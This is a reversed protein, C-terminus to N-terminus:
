LFSFLDLEKGESTIIVIKQPSRIIFEPTEVTIEGILFKLFEKIAEHGKIEYIYEFERDKHIRIFKMTLKINNKKCEVFPLIFFKGFPLTTRSNIYPYWRTSQIKISKRKIATIILNILLKDLENGNRLNSCKYYHNTSFEEKNGEESRNPYENIFIGNENRFFELSRNGKKDTIVFSDM